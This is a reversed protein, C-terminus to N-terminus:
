ARAASIRQLVHSLDEIAFPKRLHGDIQHTAFVRRLRLEEGGSMLVVAIAPQIQRIRTLTQEGDMGPMFYDLLVIDFQDKREDLLKLAKTGSSIAIVHHGLQELLFQLTARVAPEDDIVLARLSHPPTSSNM